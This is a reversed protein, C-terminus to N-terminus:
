VLGDRAAVGECSFFRGGFDRCSRKKNPRARLPRGRIASRGAVARAPASRAARRGSSLAAGRRRGRARRAARALQASVRWCPCPQARLVSCCAARRGRGSGGHTGGGNRPPVGHTGGGNRPPVGHTGGGTLKRGRASHAGARFGAGTAALCTDTYRWDGICKGGCGGPAAVRRGGCWVHASGRGGGQRRTLDAPLRRRRAPRCAVQGRREVGASVLTPTRWVAAIGHMGGNKKEIAWRCNPEEVAGKRNVQHGNRATYCSCAKGGFTVHRMPSNYRRRTPTPPLLM